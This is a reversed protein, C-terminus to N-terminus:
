FYKVPPFRSAEIEFSDRTSGPTILNPSSGDIQPQILRRTIYQRFRAVLHNESSMVSNLPSSPLVINNPPRSISLLQLENPLSPRRSLDPSLLPPLVSTPSSVDEFRDLVVVNPDVRSNTSSRSLSPTATRRSSASSQISMRRNDSPTTAYEPLDAFSEPTVVM